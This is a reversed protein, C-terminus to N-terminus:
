GGGDRTDRGNVRNSYAAHARDADEAPLMGDILWVPDPMSTIEADSYGRLTFAEPEDEPM